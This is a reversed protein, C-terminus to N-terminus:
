ENLNSDDVWIHFVIIENLPTAQSLSVLSVEVGKISTGIDFGSLSPTM